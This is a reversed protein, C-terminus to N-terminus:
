RAAAADDAHRQAVGLTDDVATISVANDILWLLEMIDDTAIVAEVNEIHPHIARFAIWPVDIFM